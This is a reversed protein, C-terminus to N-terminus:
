LVRDFAEKSTLSDMRTGPCGNLLRQCAEPTLQPKTIAVYYWNV